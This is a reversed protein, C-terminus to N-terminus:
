SNLRIAIGDRLMAVPSDYWTGRITLDVTVAGRSANAASLYLKLRHKGKTLLHAGSQPTVGAFFTFM